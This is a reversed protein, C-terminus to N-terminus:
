ATNCKFTCVCFSFSVRLRMRYSKCTLNAGKSYIEYTYTSNSRRKQLEASASGNGMLVPQCFALRPSALFQPCARDIREDGRDTKHSKGSQPMPSPQPSWWKGTTDVVGESGCDDLGVIQVSEPGVEVGEGGYREGQRTSYDHERHPHYRATSQRVRSNRTTSAGLYIVFSLMCRRHRLVGGLAERMLAGSQSPYPLYARLNSTMPANRILVQRNLLLELTAGVDAILSLFASFPGIFYTSLEGTM